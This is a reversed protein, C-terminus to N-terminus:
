RFEVDVFPQSLGLLDVEVESGELTTLVGMMPPALSRLTAM